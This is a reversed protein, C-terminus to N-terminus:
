AVREKMWGYVFAEQSSRREAIDIYREGQLANLARLMVLEGEPGRKLLYAKLAALTAPGCGGDTPIDAYLRGEGNFANLVRQLMTTAVAPGCNVGTDVLETAIGNSLAAVRDFGPAIVYAKTYVEVAEERTLNAVDMASCTYGRHASLAAQTIGYKTPGGSDKPDNTYRDGERDIVGDIIATINM